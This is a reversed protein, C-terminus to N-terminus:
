LRSPIRAAGDLRITEGNLMLNEICHRVCSAFEEGRGRRRPFVFTAEFKRMRSDSLQATSKQGLPTDFHGPAIAVCRIGFPALETALALAISNIAGKSAAYSAQGPIGGFAAISSVLVLVGREGDPELPANTTIHPLIQRLLDLVGRLNTNLVFDLKEMSVPKNDKSVLPAGIGIGAAPIVGGIPKGTTKTWDAITNVASTISDTKAMDAELFITREGLERAIKMGAEANLDLIAVYGGRTHLERVTALGLGSAGGSVIFTRDHIHM